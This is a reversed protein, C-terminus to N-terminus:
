TRHRLAQVCVSSLCVICTLLTARCDSRQRLTHTESNCACQLSESWFAPWLGQGKTFKIRAAFLGHKFQMTNHTDVRASTYERGGKPTHTATLRLAGEAVNCNAEDATYYQLEGNDPWAKEEPTWKSADLKSETFEDSWVPTATYGPRGILTPNWDPHDLVAAAVASPCLVSPALLAASAILASRLLSRRSLRTM